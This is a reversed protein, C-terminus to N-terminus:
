TTPTKSVPRSGVLKPRTSDLESTKSRQHTGQKNPPRSSPRRGPCKKVRSLPSLLYLTAAFPQLWSEQRLPPNSKQTYLKPNATCICPKPLLALKRHLTQPNATCICPKSLLTLNRREPECTLNLIGHIAASCPGLMRNQMGSLVLQMRNTETIAQPTPGPHWQRCRQKSWCSSPRPWQLAPSHLSGPPARLFDDKTKPNNPNQKGPTRRSLAELGESFHPGRVRLARATDAV